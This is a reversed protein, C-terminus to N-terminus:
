PALRKGDQIGGLTHIYDHAFMGLHANEAAVIIGGRFEKGGRTKLTEYKPVYRRSVGSLMGPNACYCIMGYGQGPMTNVGPIIVMQDYNSFDVDREVSSMTDEVLKRVRKKDVKFNYPSVKYASLSDPLMVWGRFDAKISIQGYSQETMYDSLSVAARQKIEELSKGPQADPFKVTVMLVRKEGRAQTSQPGLFSGEEGGASPVTGGLFSLVLTISILIRTNM